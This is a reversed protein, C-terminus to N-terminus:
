NYKLIDYAKQKRLPVYQQTNFCANLKMFGTHVSLTKNGPLTKYYM